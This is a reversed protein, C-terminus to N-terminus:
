IKNCLLEELFQAQKHKLENLNQVAQNYDLQAEVLKAQETNSLTKAMAQANRRIFQAALLTNLEKEM